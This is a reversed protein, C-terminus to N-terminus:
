VFNLERQREHWHRRHQAGKLLQLIADSADAADEDAQIPDPSAMSLVVEVTGPRGRVVQLDTIRYKARDLSALSKRIEDVAETATQGQVSFHARSEVTQPRPQSTM